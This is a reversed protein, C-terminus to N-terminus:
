QPLYQNPPCVVTTGGGSKVIINGNALRHPLPIYVNGSYVECNKLPATLNAFVKDKKKTLLWYGIGAVAVIGIIMQTKKNM